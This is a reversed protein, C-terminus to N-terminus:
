PCTTVLASARNLLITLVSLGPRGGRSECLEQVITAPGVRKILFSTGTDRREGGQTVFPDPRLSLSTPRLNRFHRAGPKAPMGGRRDWCM